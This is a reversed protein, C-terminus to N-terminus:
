LYRIVNARRCITQIQRLTFFQPNITLYVEGTFVKNGYFPKKSTSLASPAVEPKKKTKIYKNFLDMYLTEIQGSQQLTVLMWQECRECFCSQWPIGPISHPSTM